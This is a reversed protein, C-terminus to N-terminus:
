RAAGCAVFAGWAWPHGGLGGSRQARLLALSADRVADAPGRGDTLRTKYLDRMWRRTPADEVSWLSMVITGAGAVQFARRLGFLGEHDVISGLGTDCGSLVVWDVASLDLSSIEAATLLGDDESVPMHGRANAGALALGSRVLPPLPEEDAATDSASVPCPGDIFYGHTALHLM